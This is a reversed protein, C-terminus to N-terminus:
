RFLTECRLLAGCLYRCFYRKFGKM